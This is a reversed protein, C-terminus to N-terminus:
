LIRQSVLHAQSFFEDTKSMELSLTKGITTPGATTWITSCRSDSLCPRRGCWGCGLSITTLFHWVLGPNPIREKTKQAFRENKTLSYAFLSLLFERGQVLRVVGAVVWPYQPSVIDSFGCWGCGLSITTIYHWCCSSLGCGSRSM